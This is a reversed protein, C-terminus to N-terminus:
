TSLSSPFVQAAIESGPGDMLGGYQQRFLAIKPMAHAAFTHLLTQKDNSSLHASHEKYFWAVTNLSKQDRFLSDDLLLTSVFGIICVFL